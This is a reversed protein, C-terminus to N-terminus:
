LNVIDDMMEYIQTAHIDCQLNQFSKVTMGTVFFGNFRGQLFSLPEFAKIASYYNQFSKHTRSFIRIINSCTTSRETPPLNKESRSM